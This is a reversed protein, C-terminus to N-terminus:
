EPLQEVLAKLDALEQELQTIRDLLMQRTVVPTTEIQFHALLPRHDSTTRDDPFDGAVVIIESTAEWDQAEGSVFVFDLVSDFSCTDGQASCQTRVLTAPRVWEFVGDAILLDYGADHDSDGGTVEWDFNYDGVAIVPVTQAEAWDNLMQAQQHRRSANGRYLHNVMVMLEEVSQRERLHAVLPARVGGGINIDSLEMQNLIEFRDADYLILLRDGGGTTGLIREYNANEGVEAAAEFAAADRSEVESLGWIDVDQFDAIRSAIVVPDAEGSEVNWGIVTIQPSNQAFVTPASFGLVLVLLVVLSRLPYSIRVFM